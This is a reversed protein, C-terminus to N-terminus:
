PATNASPKSLMKDVKALLGHMEGLLKDPAPNLGDSSTAKNLASHRAAIMKELNKRIDTLPPKSALSPSPSPSRSPSPSPVSLQIPPLYQLSVTAFPAGFQGLLERDRYAAEAETSKGFVVRANRAAKVIETQSEILYGYKGFTSLLEDRSPVIVGPTFEVLIAAPNYFDQATKKKKKNPTPNVPNPCTGNVVEGSSHNSAAGAPLKVKQVPAEDKPCEDKLAHGLAIVDTGNTNQKKLMEPVLAQLSAYSQQVTRMEVSGPEKNEYIPQAIDEHMPSPGSGIPADAVAGGLNEVIHINAELKTAEKSVSRDPVGAVASQVNEDISADVESETAEKSVIREPVAADGQVNKDRHVSAESLTSEKSVRGVPIYADVSQASVDIHINAESGTTETQVSRVPVGVIINQMNTESKTVELKADGNYKATEEPLTNGLAQSKELVSKDNEQVQEQGPKTAGPITASIPCKFLPPKSKEDQVIGRTNSGAKMLTRIDEAKVQRIPIAPTIPIGSGLTDAPSTKERKKRKISSGGSGDGDKKRGRKPVRKDQELVPHTDSVLGPAIDMSANRFTHVMPCEHANYSANDYGEIFTSSRFLGIFGEAAEPFVGMHHPDKGLGRVLLLVDEVVISDLLPLVKSDDETAKPVSAKPLDVPKRPLVVVGLNTYPPSLYKSKKRERKRSTVPGPSDSPDEDKGVDLEKMVSTVSRKKQVPTEEPRKLPMNDDQALWDDADRDEGAPVDLDIKDVLDELPRRPYHQAGGPGWGEGFARTWSKLRARDVLGVPSARAGLAAARLAALFEAPELNAVGVVACGEKGPPPPPVCACTLQARLAAVARAHAEEVAALFGRATSGRAMADADPDAFRRVQAPPAPTAGSASAAAPPEGFYCVEAGRAASSGTAPCAALMRAPWWCHRRPKSPKVWVLEGAALTQAAADADPAPTKAEM